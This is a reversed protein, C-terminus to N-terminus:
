RLADCSCLFSRITWKKQYDEETDSLPTGQWAIKTKIRHQTGFRDM